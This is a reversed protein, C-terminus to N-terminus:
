HAQGWSPGIGISATLPVALDHPLSHEMIEKIEARAEQATEAPGENVIEDHVQLLQYVGYKYELNAEDCKIQAMKAIDAASGQIPTNVARREAEARENSNYSNIHPLSRRRGLITFAFGSQRTEEVAEKYFDTVAPYRNKYIEIKQKAERVSINLDNALKKAGMGYNMGFGINKAAARAQLLEIVRDTIASKPLEGSKVKNDIAKAQRVEEYDHDFMLAANGMHIDWGKLFVNIMDQEMSAAAVLRMELQSNHSLFGEAIFTRTSTRIAIVPSLGGIREIKTITAPRTKNSWTRKGEWITHSKELLRKPRISGLLRLHDAETFRFKKCSETGESSRQLKFSRQQLQELVYNLVEGKNQAFGVVSDSVWGEGDLFGALYGASHSLETDWPTTFFSIRDGPQLEKSKVWRRKNSRDGKVPRVVWGHESSAVVTGRDTTIRYCPLQLKRIREVKSRRYKNKHGLKLDEDFGILEDGAKTEDIRRWTLDSHLIKTGPALCYDGAIIVNNVEAIFAMRLQWVDNELTPVNQLNPTSSSLRGTRAVDQNFRTHIRDYQDTLTGMKKLFGSYFTGLKKRKDVLNVLPHEEALKERVDKDTSPARIGSKGGKTMKIPSLKLDDFFLKRLHDDSNVNVIWGAEKSIQKDLENMQAIVDPEIEELRERNIKIGNRENKYLVRTYPMEVKEFLNWLTQINWPDVNAFLSYTYADQLQKKLEEYVYWTGYADNAAYEVLLEFDEAEARRILHLPTVGTKKSIKGFTDQFDTWGWGLIHKAMFKLGHPMDEYLLAHMVCTDVLRGTVAIGMNALMHLDFKANAFVWIKTPDEFVKKFYPLVSVSLTIRRGPWGLSWYLVVDQYVVLGTTETDIALEPQAMAENILNQLGPSTHDYYEAQPMSINWGPM